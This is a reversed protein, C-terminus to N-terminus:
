GHAAHFYHLSVHQQVVKVEIWPLPFCTHWKMKIVNIAAVPTQATTAVMRVSALGACALLGTGALAAGQGFLTLVTICLLM